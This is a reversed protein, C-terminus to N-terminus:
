RYNAWKSWPLELKADHKAGVISKRDPVSIKVIQSLNLKINQTFCLLKSLAVYELLPVRSIQVYEKRPCINLFAFYDLRYSAFFIALLARRQAAGSHPLLGGGIESKVCRTDGMCRFAAWRVTM